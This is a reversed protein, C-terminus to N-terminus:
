KWGQAKWRCLGEGQNSRRKTGAVNSVDRQMRVLPTLTYKCLAPFTARGDWLKRLGFAVLLGFAFGLNQWMTSIKPSFHFYQHAEAKGVKTQIHKRGSLM